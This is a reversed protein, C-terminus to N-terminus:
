ARVGEAAGLVAGTEGMVEHSLGAWRPEREALAAFVDQARGAPLAIGLASGLRQLLALDSEADGNGCVAAVNTPM